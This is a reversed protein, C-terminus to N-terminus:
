APPKRTAVARTFKAPRSDTKKRKRPNRAKTTGTAGATPKKAVKKVTKKAAKKITKKATKQVAKKAARKAAGSAIKTRPKQAASGQGATAIGPRAVKGLLYDIIIQPELDDDISAGDASTLPLFTEGGFWPVEKITHSELDARIWFPNVPRFYDVVRDGSYDTYAARLGLTEAIPQTPYQHIAVYIDTGRNPFHQIAPESAFRLDGLVLSLYDAKLPFEANRFQKLSYERLPLKGSFIRLAGEVLPEAAEKLSEMAFREYPNELDGVVTAQLEAFFEAASSIEPLDRSWSPHGGANRPAAGRYVEVILEDESRAGVGLAPIVTTRVHLLPKREVEPLFEDAWINVPSELTARMIPIGLTERGREVQFDSDVFSYPYIMGYRNGKGAGQPRRVPVVFSLQRGAWSSIAGSGGTVTGDYDVVIMYVFRGWSKFSSGPNWANLYRDCFSELALPDALLPLVRISAGPSLTKGTVGLFPEGRTTNFLGQDGEKAPLRDIAGSDDVFFWAPAGSEEQSYGKARWCVSRAKGYLFDVETWYPFVPKIAAVDGEGDYSESDVTLGLTSIIPEATDRHLWIEFGASRDGALLHADALMGGRHIRLPKMVGNTLAQYCAKTPDAGDRFQKLNVTNAGLTLPMETLTGLVKSAMAMMESPTRYPYGRLPSSTVLEVLNGFVSLATLAANPLSVLPSFPSRLDPPLGTLNASPAHIVQLLKSLRPGDELRGRRLLRTEVTMLTEPARVDRAWEPISGTLRAEVKPWGFVERGTAQSMASDVYIYPSCSAWDQFVLEDGKKRYWELPINFVVENQAVWGANLIESAMRGYNILSLLVFPAAPRFYAIEPPMINLYHDCFATLAAPNARLPFSRLIVNRFAFPPASQLTAAGRANNFDLLPPYKATM